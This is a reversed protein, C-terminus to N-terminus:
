MAAFRERQGTTSTGGGAELRLVFVPLRAENLWRLRAVTTRCIKPGVISEAALASEALGRAEQNPQQVLHL